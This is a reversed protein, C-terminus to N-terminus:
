DIYLIEIDVRCAERLNFSFLPIILSDDVADLLYDLLTAFHM